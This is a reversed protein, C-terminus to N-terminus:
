RRRLGRLCDLDKDICGGNCEKQTTEDCGGANFNFFKNSAVRKVCPSAERAVLLVRIRLPDGPVWGQITVVGDECKLGIHLQKLEIDLFRKKLNNVIARALAADTVKSCDVRAAKPTPKRTKSAPKPAKRSM